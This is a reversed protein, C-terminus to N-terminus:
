QADSLTAPNKILTRMRECGYRVDVWTSSWCVTAALRTTSPLNCVQGTSEHTVATVGYSDRCLTQVAELVAVLGDTTMKYSSRANDDNSKMRVGNVSPIQHEALSRTLETLTPFM